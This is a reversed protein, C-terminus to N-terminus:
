CAIAVIDDLEDKNEQEVICLDYAAQMNVWMQPSNGLLRGLRLALNPTVSYEENLVGYLTPRSVGLRRALEAKSINLSPLVDERLVEGPHTPCRNITRM